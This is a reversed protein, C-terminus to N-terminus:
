VFRPRMAMAIVQSSIGIISQDTSLGPCKNIAFNADNSSLPKPFYGRRAALASFGKMVFNMQLVAISLSSAIASISRDQEKALPQSTRIIKRNSALEIATSYQPQNNAKCGGNFVLGCSRVFPIYCSRVM